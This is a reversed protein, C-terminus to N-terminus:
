IIKFVISTVYFNKHRYLQKNVIRIEEHFKSGIM